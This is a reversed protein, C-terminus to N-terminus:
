NTLVKGGLATAMLDQFLAISVAYRGLVDRKSEITMVPPLGTAQGVAVKATGIKACVREVEPLRKIELELQEQLRITQGLLTVAGFLLAAGACCICGTAAPAREMRM